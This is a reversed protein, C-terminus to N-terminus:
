ASDIRALEWVPPADGTLSAQLAALEGPGLARLGATVQQLYEASIVARGRARARRLRARASPSGAYAWVRGPAGDIQATVDRRVYNRERRDLLALAEDGVPLCVGNVAAGARRVIDLFTVFVEPRTGDVLRYHKYGPLDRANDMAVGWRRAFGPLEAIWGRASPTRSLPGAAVALSGYAFVFQPTSLGSLSTARGTVVSGLHPGDIVAM